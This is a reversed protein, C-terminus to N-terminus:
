GQPSIVGIAVLDQRLQNLLETMIDQGAPAAAGASRGSLALVADPVGAGTRGPDGLNLPTASDKLIQFLRDVRAANRQQFPGGKLFEPNHALVLAALGAVHPAAMSTGDWAAFGDPPVSSVIAVGPACLDVEPGHCSFSASFYGKDVPADPSVRLAHTSDPPFESLKGVAAVTLVDPSTGPFLVPGGANGAAVICAIGANKAQRLKLLIEESTDRGGLSMNVVDLEQAICYDLSDLLSSFRGGPLVRCARLDADPAFGRIGSNNNRAGVVGCCHSGHAQVDNEWGFDQTPVVTFDQGRSINTLDPHDNDAGSDIVAVKVGAGTFRPDIQDLRMARQGWGIAQRDPFGAILDSLPKLVVENVPGGSTLVPNAILLSWHDRQPMVQLVRLTDDSENM